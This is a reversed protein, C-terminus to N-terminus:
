EFGNPCCTLLRCGDLFVNLLTPQSLENVHASHACFWVSGEPSLLGGQPSYLLGHEHFRPFSRFFWCSLELRDPVVAMCQLAQFLTMFGAAGVAAYQHPPWGRVGAAM